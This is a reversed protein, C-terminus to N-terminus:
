HPRAVKPQVCAADRTGVSSVMPYEVASAYSIEQSFHAIRLRHADRGCLAACSASRSFQGAGEIPEKGQHPVTVAKLWHFVACNCRQM